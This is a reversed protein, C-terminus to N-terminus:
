LGDGEAYSTIELVKCDCPGYLAWLCDLFWMVSHLSILLM